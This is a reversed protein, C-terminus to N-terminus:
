VVQEAAPRLSWPVGWPRSTRQDLFGRLRGVAQDVGNMPPLMAVPTPAVLLEGIVRALDEPTREGDGIARVIRREALREARLRQEASPGRRPLVITPKRLRMTELISNYGAMTLLVDAARLYSPLHDVCWVIRAPLDAARRRLDEIQGRRMLPGTICVLELDQSGGILRLADLCLKMMPYGDAGGGATAVAVKRATLGLGHRATGDDAGGGGNESCVYGCYHAPVGTEEELRYHRKTDFVEEAGYILVADYCRSIARYIGDRRWTQVTRAPDDLIDRVGLVVCPGRPSRRWGRLSPALEGWVGIPHHDVLVLDPRLTAAVGEIIRRRLRSLQDLQLSLTRPGLVGEASKTLSPLKILDVRDPCDLFGAPQSTLMLVDLEPIEEVLRSAIALNRRQHGLGVVDGCYILISRARQKM